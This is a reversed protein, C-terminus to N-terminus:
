DPGWWQAFGGLFAQFGQAFGVITKDDGFAIQLQAARALQEARSLAARQLEAHGIQGRM